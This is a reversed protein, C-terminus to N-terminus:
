FHSNWEGQLDSPHDLPHFPYSRILQTRPLQEAASGLGPPGINEGYLRLFRPINTIHSATKLDSLLELRVKNFRYICLVRARKRAFMCLSTYTVALLKWCNLFTSHFLHTRASIFVLFYISAWRLFDGFLAPAAFRIRKALILIYSLRSSLYVDLCQM